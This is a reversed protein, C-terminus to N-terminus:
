FMLGGRSTPVLALIECHISQTYKAHALLCEQMHRNYLMHSFDGNRSM